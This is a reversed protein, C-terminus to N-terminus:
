RIVVKSDRPMDWIFKADENYMRVCGRTTPKNTVSNRVSGNAWWCRTHFYGSGHFGRALKFYYSRGSDDVRYVTGRKNGLRFKKSGKSLPQAFNGTTVRVSRILKWSGQKGKFINVRQTYENVWVLYNTKSAFKNAYEEKVSVPYDDKVKIQAKVRVTGWAAWGVTGDDFKVKVRSPKDFGSIHKPYKGVAVGKTGKKITKITASGTSSKYLPAKRKYTVIWKFKPHVKEIYSMIEPSKVSSSDKYVTEDEASIARVRYKHVGAKARFEYKTASADIDKELVKGDCLISYSGVTGNEPKTWRLTVLNDSRLNKKREAIKQTPVKSFEVDTPKSITVAAENETNTDAFVGISMSGFIMTVAILLTLLRAIRRNKDVIFRGKTM